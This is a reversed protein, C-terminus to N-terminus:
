HEGSNKKCQSRESDCQGLVPRLGGRLGVIGDPGGCVFGESHGSPDAAVASTQDGIKVGLPGDAVGLREPAAFAPQDHYLAVDIGIVVLKADKRHFGYLGFRPEVRALVIGSEASSTAYAGNLHDSRRATM